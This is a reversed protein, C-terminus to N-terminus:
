SLGHDDILENLLARKEEELEGMTFAASYLGEHITPICRICEAEFIIQRVGEIMIPFDIQINFIRSAEIMEECIILLGNRSLDALSGIEFGTSHDIVTLDQIFSHRTEIRKDSQYSSNIDNIFKISPTFEPVLRTENRILIDLELENEDDNEVENIPISIVEMEGLEDFMVTQENLLALKIHHIISDFVQRTDQISGGTDEAVLSILSSDNLSNTM